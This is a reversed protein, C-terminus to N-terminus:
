KIEVKIKNKDIGCIESIREVMRKLKAATYKEDMEILEKETMFEKLIERGYNTYHTKFKRSM